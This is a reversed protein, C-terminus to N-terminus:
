VLKEILFRAHAHCLHPAFLHTRISLLKVWSSAARADIPRNDLGEALTFWLRGFARQSNIFAWVHVKYDVHLTALTQTVDVAGCVRRGLVRLSASALRNLQTVPFYDTDVSAAATKNEKSCGHYVRRSNNEM